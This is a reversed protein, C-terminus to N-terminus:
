CRVFTSTFDIANNAIMVHPKAMNLITDTFECTCTDYGQGLLPITHLVPQKSPM